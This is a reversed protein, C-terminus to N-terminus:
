VHARGIEGAKMRNEDKVWLGLVNYGWPRPMWRDIVMFGFESPNIGAGIFSGIKRSFASILKDASFMGPDQQIASDHEGDWIEKAKKANVANGEPMLGRSLANIAKTAESTQVQPGVGAGYVGSIAVIRNLMKPDDVKDAFKRYFANWEHYWLRFESNKKAFEVIQGIRVERNDPDWMPAPNFTVDTTGAAREKAWFAEYGKGVYYPKVNYYGLMPHFKKESPSAKTGGSRLTIQHKGGLEAPKGYISTKGYFFPRLFKITHPKILAVGYERLVRDWEKSHEMIEGRAIKDRIGSVDEMRRFKVPANRKIKSIARYYLGVQHVLDPSPPFDGIGNEIIFDRAKALGGERKAISLFEERMM